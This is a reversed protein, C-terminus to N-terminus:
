RYPVYGSGGSAFCLLCHNIGLCLVHLENQRKRRFLSSSNSFDTRRENRGPKSKM